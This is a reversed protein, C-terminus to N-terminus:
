IKMEKKKSSHSFRGLSDEVIPDVPLRGEVATTETKLQVTILKLRQARKRLKREMTAQEM